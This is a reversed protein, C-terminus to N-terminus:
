VGRELQRMHRKARAPTQKAWLSDLGEKAALAFEGLEIAARMKKFDALGDVGLQYAMSMLVARRVENLAHWNIFLRPVAVNLVDLRQRTLYLAGAKSIRVEILKNDLLHKWAEPTIYTRELCFGNGFTWLDRTDRYPKERFGEEDVILQLQDM